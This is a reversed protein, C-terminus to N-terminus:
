SATFSLPNMRVVHYQLQFWVHDSFNTISHTPHDFTIEQRELDEGEEEGGKQDEQSVGLSLVQWQSWVGEGAWVVVCLYTMM